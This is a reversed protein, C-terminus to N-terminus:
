KHTIYGLKVLLEATLVAGGAAGRLPYAKHPIWGQACLLEATEVAGGAAGRLTNHSLCVFRYDMLRDERLRGISIGMGGYLDRDLRTQPRDDQTYYTLFKEPASPLGMGDLAGKFSNWRDIIQECTPKNTFKVSVAATHGDQVPVRLCQASIVPKEAPVIVGDKLTGWVKLPEQESKEEEGGIYPIVNDVMEPWTAFTKGAGSIAQYTCVSVQEIGFDLLPSLAPVYSQISCNPKVAVFGRTTGLRKKQTEIVKAHEINVEPIMMPVDPEGRQASNNSVVPTETKALAIELAKTDAKPMNVACFVFDVDRCVAEADAADMVTLQATKEPMPWSFAWKNGVAERYTKGASHSSAAVVAVEFWPHDALLSVFRQGVMGTAGVIGVRFKQM